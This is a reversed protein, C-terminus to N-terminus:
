RRSFPPPPPTLAIIAIITGSSYKPPLCNTSPKPSVFPFPALSDYPHSSDRRVKVVPDVYVTNAFAVLPHPPHPQESTCRSAPSEDADVAQDSEAIAKAQPVERGGKRKRSRFM